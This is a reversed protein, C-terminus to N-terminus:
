HFPFVIVRFSSSATSARRGREPQYSQGPIRDQLESPSRALSLTWEEVTRSGLGWSSLLLGEGASEGAPLLVPKLFTYYLLM